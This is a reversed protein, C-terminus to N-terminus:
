GTLAADAFRLSREALDAEVLRQNPVLEGAFIAARIQDAVDTANVAASARTATAM